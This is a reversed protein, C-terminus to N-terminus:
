RDDIILFQKQVITWSQFITQPLLKIIISFISCESSACIGGQPVESIIVGKGLHATSRVGEQATQFKFM